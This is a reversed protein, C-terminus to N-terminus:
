LRAKSCSDFYIVDQAHFLRQILSLVALLAHPNRNLKSISFAWLRQM